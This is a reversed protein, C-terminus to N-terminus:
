YPVLTFDGVTKKGKEKKVKKFIAGFLIERKLILSKPSNSVSVAIIFQEFCFGWFSYSV